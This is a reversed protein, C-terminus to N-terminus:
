NHVISREISRIEVWETVAAAESGSKGACNKRFKTTFVIQRRQGVIQQKEQPRGTEKIYHLPGVDTVM